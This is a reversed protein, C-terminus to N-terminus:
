TSAGRTAVSMSMVIEPGVARARTVWIKSLGVL